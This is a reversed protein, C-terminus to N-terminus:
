RARPEASPSRPIGTLFVARGRVGANWLYGDAGPVAHAAHLLEEPTYARLASVTGDWAVLLPICPLLYTLLLRSARVPRVLPTALLAGVFLVAMNAAMALPALIAPLRRLGPSAAVDVFALPARRRVVAAVVASVDRPAFHHLASAMTRVGALDGGGGMADVPQALYVTSRDGLSQVRAMGSASPFRDSLVLHVTRGAARLRTVLALTGGGGGSCLDVLRHAGTADLVTVLEAAVGDYFGLRDFGLDLLDTAGDRIARPLWAADEFEVLQVRRM